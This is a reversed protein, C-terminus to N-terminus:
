QEFPPDGQNFGPLERALRAFFDVETFAGQLNALTVANEDPFAVVNERTPALPTSVNAIRVPTAPPTTMNLNM